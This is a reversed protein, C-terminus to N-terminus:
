ALSAKKLLDAHLALFGQRASAPRELARRLVDGEQYLLVERRARTVGTYVLNRTLLGEAEKPLLLHVREWESGQSRHVTIAYAPSVAELLYAPVTRGRKTLLTGDPRVEAVLDTDGNSFGFAPENRTFIVPMGKFFGWALGGRGRGLRRLVGQNIAEMGYRGRRLPTLVVEVEPDAQSALRVVEEPSPLELLQVAGEGLLDERLLGERVGAAFASLGPLSRRVEELRFVPLFRQLELMPWGPEVPPLQAPDGVFLFSAGVGSSALLDHLLRTDVMGFEDVVVLRAAYLREEALARHVTYAPRGTAEQLRSAAKGTPALLLVDEFAEAVKRVVTTKGSGAPGLLLCAGGAVLCRFLEPLPPDLAEWFPSVGKRLSLPRKPSLLLRAAEREREDWERTSIRGGRVVAEGGEVLLSLGVQFPFPDGGLAEEAERFSVCTNGSAAFYGELFSKAYAAWRGAYGPDLGLNQWLSDVQRFTFGARLLAYPEQWLYEKALPGFAAYAKEAVEPPFGSQVLGWVPTGVFPRLAEYVRRAKPSLGSPSRDAQLCGWLREEEEPDLDEGALLRSLYRRGAEPPLALQRGRLFAVGRVLIRGAEREAAFGSLLMGEQLSPVVWSPVLLAESGAGTWLSVLRYTATQRLIEEVGGSAPVLASVTREAM